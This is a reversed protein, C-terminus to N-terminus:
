RPAAGAEVVARLGPYRRRLQEELRSRLTFASAPCGHCTGLLRVTVVGDCADVLEIRGGHSRAFDGASGNLLAEAASRLAEDGTAANMIQWGDPDDLAAHVASRVRAGEVPWGRGVALTTLVAAPEVRVQALTGDRLLADLPAPAVVVEGAGPLAGAPTIWRLQDPRGPCAQPHIPIM